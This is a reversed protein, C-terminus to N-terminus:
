CLDGDCTNQNNQEEIDIDLKIILNTNEVVKSDANRNQSLIKYDNYEYVNESTISINKGNKDRFNVKIKFENAFDMIDSVNYTGSTFDPYVNKINPVYLTITDGSTM